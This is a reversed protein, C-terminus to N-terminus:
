LSLFNRLITEGVRGSKEPHFQVAFFNDKQLAASFPVIYNGMAITAGYLPPAYYSHVFYVYSNNKVNKFLPTKLETITNWGMHPVKNRPPFLRVDLDFVSLGKTNNESSYHCLLQLGLCIGLFPQRLRPILDALGSTQLDQMAARAAGVGPFIVYDATEITEPENSVIPEVGLRQLALQVSFINGANYKIIVVKM